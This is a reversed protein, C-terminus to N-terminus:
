LQARRMWTEAADAVDHMLQPSSQLYWYTGRVSAHGLYTSLALMHPTVQERGHPCAELAHVAMSHRLDHLRVRVSHQVGASSCVERFTRWVTEYCLPTRKLSVFLHDYNSAVRQRREVYRTLAASTSPHLLVMRSKHFKTERIVIADPRLDDLRLHLAESVRLGTVALLGFLTSFTLPRLSRHPPLQAAAQVLRGIEESSFIHPLPRTQAACAHVRPPIEHRPDEAHLFRALGIVARTRRDCQRPTAACAAWELATHSTLHSDARPAAFRAFSRLMQEDRELKYGLARRLELYRDIAATLM